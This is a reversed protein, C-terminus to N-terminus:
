ASGLVEGEVLAGPGGEREDDGALVPKVAVQEQFADDAGFALWL